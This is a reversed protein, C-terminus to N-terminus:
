GFSFASSLWGIILRIFKLLLARGGTYDTMKGALAQDAQCSERFQGV